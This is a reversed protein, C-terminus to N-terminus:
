FKFIFLYNFVKVISKQANQTDKSTNIVVVCPSSKSNRTNSQLTIINYVALVINFAILGRLLLRSDLRPTTMWQRKQTSIM